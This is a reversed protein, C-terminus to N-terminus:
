LLDLYLCIGCSNGRRRRRRMEIRDPLLSGVQAGLEEISLVEAKAKEEKNVSREATMEPKEAM